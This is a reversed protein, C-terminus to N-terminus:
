DKDSKKDWLNEYTSIIAQQQEILARVDSLNLSVKEYGDATIAFLVKSEGPKMESFIEDANEPTIIVWEVNKMKVLDTEPLIPKPPLTEKTVIKVIPEPGISDFIACSSLLPIAMLCGLVNAILRNEM